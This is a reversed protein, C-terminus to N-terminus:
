MKDEWNELSVFSVFVSLPLHPPQLGYNVALTDLLIGFLNYLTYVFEQESFICVATKGKSIVKVEM